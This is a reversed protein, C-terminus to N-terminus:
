EGLLNSMQQQLISTQHVQALTSTKLKLEDHQFQTVLDAIDADELQSQAASTSILTQQLSAISSTFATASSGLDSQVSSLHNQFAVISEMSTIDLGETNLEGINGSLVGQSTEFANQSGFLAKNNYTASDISDQMSEVLANFDSQLASREQSGLSANNYRVSMANLKAANESLGSTVGDAIQMMAVGDNLNMLGQGITSVQTNLMSAISASASDDISNKVGSAIMGLTKSINNQYNNIYNSNGMSNNIKM